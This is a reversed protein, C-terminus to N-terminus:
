LQVQKYPELEIWGMTEPFRTGDTAKIENGDIELELNHTEAFAKLSTVASELTERKVVVTHSGDKKHLLYM